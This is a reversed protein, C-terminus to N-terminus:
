VSVDASRASVVVKVEEDLVAFGSSAPKLQANSKGPADDSDQTESTERHLQRVQHHLRLKSPTIPSKQRLRPWCVSSCCVCQRLATGM